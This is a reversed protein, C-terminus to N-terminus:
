LIYYVMDVAGNLLFDSKRFTARTCQHVVRKRTVIQTGHRCPFLVSILFNYTATAYRMLHNKSLIKPPNKAFFKTQM